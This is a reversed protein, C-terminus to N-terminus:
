LGWERADYGQAAVEWNEETTQEWLQEIRLEPKVETDELVRRILPHSDFNPAVAFMLVVFATITSEWTMGYSRARAIGARVMKLLTEDDLDRVVLEAVEDGGAPLTVVEEAHEERLYVAVRREFAAEAAPTFAKIQAPRIKLM